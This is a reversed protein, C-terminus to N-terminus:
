LGSNQVRERGWGAVVRNWFLHTNLRCLLFSLSFCKLAALALLSLLASLVPHTIGITGQFWLLKWIRPRPPPLVGKPDKGQEARWHSLHPGVEGSLEVGWCPRECLVAPVFCLTLPLIPISSPFSPVRLRFNFSYGSYIAAGSFQFGLVGCGLNVGKCQTIM